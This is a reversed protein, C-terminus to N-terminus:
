IFKFEYKEFHWYLCYAVFFLRTHAINSFVVCDNQPVTICLQIFVMPTSASPRSVVQLGVETEIGISFFIVLISDIYLLAKTFHFVKTNAPLMVLHLDQRLDM